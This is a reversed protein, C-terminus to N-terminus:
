CIDYMKDDSHIDISNNKRDNPSVFMYKIDKVNCPYIANILVDLMEWPQLLCQCHPFHILLKDGLM